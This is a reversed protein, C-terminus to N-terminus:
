KVKFEFHNNVEILLNANLQALVHLQKRSHNLNLM